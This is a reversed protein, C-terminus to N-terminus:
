QARDKMKMLILILGFLVLIIITQAAWTKLIMATFKEDNGKDVAAWGFLRDFRGLMAEAQGISENRNIQWESLTEQYAIMDSQYQSVRRQYVEIDAEYKAQLTVVRAQHEKLAQLYANMAVSDSKDVPEQPPQPLAPKAPPDGVDAPKVPEPEDIASTYFMGLGPFECSEQRLANIGLCLCGLSEKDKQSLQTRSYYPLDWCPDAALDAGVGTIGMISQFAWRTSTIATVAGPLPILAGGIVIQPIMLLIVLLPVTNSNPALASAFLGIMMGAFTALAITVYILGFELVGGPMDFALYHLLTYSFAQYLALLGAVWMKSVVYPLIQLNVLRERRYVAKEKVIERMQSLGGVLVGYITFLFLSIAIPSFDGFQYDYPNHDMGSALVFDLMGVLPAAALMLFLSVRDRSLIKLNRASLIVFQRITRLPDAPQSRYKMTPKIPGAPASRDGGVWAPLPDIDHGRARLPDVIYRQYAPNKQFRAQWDAPSGMSPDELIAYIQDFDMGGFRREREPKYQSFYSLAEDPPGFWALYGGRALFIVKDALMVNKTAHTILVITRGQDALRRMLQMLATETGPDLGSSPEDLIFLGPKTLLEVGISVRKQQGGSLGSIQVDKRYTLDLDQMVQMIRTHREESSTDPPMRLRAAYDLSQYVTLEMHIIDRQPVYGISNRIADFHRYLDIDNVFVQGQTAPRYGAIADVLTTKGGGSQGVVVVFERPQVVLSIDQLLNLDKRVWKQLGVVDARLGGSQDIQALEDEGLVFLYPGIRLTDQPKAWVEDKIRLNNVFTGNVSRLDRIRYRQGIREVEAHFRSVPPAELVIDNSPDRGFLLKAQTGMQINRARQKDSSTSQLYQITVLQGAEASGVRILSNHNLEVGGSVLQGNVYTENTNGPLVLLRYGNPIAELRAHHRSIIQSHITIGNDDDRGITIQPSIMLHTQPSEGAVTVIIQSPLHEPSYNNTLDSFKNEDQDSYARATTPLEGTQDPIRPRLLGIETPVDSPNTDDSLVITDKRQRIPQPLQFELATKEGLTIKDGSNLPHRSNLRQDNLYTGNASGNDEIYFLGSQFTIRAHYRSVVQSSLVVQADPARGIVVEPQDLDYTRGSDSGQIVILRFASESSM